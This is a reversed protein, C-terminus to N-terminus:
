RDEKRGQALYVVGLAFFMAAVGYLSRQEGVHAALVFACGAALYLYGSLKKWHARPM